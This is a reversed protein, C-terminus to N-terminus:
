QQSAEYSDISWDDLNGDGNFELSLENEVIERADEESEAEIDVITFDIRGTVTFLAKLKESGISELLYNVDDVTCTIETDGTDYRDKFFEYVKERVQAKEVWYKNAKEKQYDLDQITNKIMEDTYKITNGDKDTYLYEM